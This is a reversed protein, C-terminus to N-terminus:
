HHTSTNLLHRRYTPIRHASRYSSLIEPVCLNIFISEAWWSDSSFPVWRCETQQSPRHTLWLKTGIHCGFPPLYPVLDCDNEIRTQNPPLLRPVYHLSSWASLYAPEGVTTLKTVKYGRLALKMALLSAVAGGLSHGCLEVDADKSLLPLIDKLIRHAHHQFGQHVRCQLEEDYIMITQLCTIVDIWLSTGRVFIQQVHQGTSTIEYYVYYCERRARQIQQMREEGLIFRWVDSSTEEEEKAMKTVDRLVIGGLFGRQWHWQRIRDLEEHTQKAGMLAAREITTALEAAEAETVPILTDIHQQRWQRTALSTGVTLFTFLVVHTFQIRRRSTTGTREATQFVARCQRERVSVRCSLATRRGYLRVVLLSSM